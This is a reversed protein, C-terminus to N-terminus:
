PQPSPDPNTATNTAPGDVQARFSQEDDALNDDFDDGGELGQWKWTKTRGASDPHWPPAGRAGRNQAARQRADPDPNPTQCKFCRSKSAFVNEQCTPCTWDGPKIAGPGGRPPGRPGREFSQQMQRPPRDRQYGGGGGGGGRDYGGGGGGQRQYGGGGGGGESRYGGGGGGQRGYGGERQQYGGGGGGQRGYGGERQQYGSGGGSGRDYGGGGGGGGGGGSYGGRDASRGQDVQQREPWRGGGGGGGGYDDVSRSSTPPAGEGGDEQCKIASAAIKRQRTGPGFLAFGSTVDLSGLLLLACRLLPTSMVAAKSAQKFIETTQWIEQPPTNGGSLIAAQLMVSQDRETELAARSGQKFIWPDQMGM